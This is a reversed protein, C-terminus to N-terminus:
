ASECFSSAFLVFFWPSIFFFFFFLSFQEGGTPSSGVVKSYWDILYFDLASTWQAVPTFM